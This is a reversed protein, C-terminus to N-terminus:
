RIRYTLRRTTASSEYQILLTMTVSKRKSRIPILVV